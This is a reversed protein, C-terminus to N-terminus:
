KELKNLKPLLHRTASYAVLVIAFNEDMFKYGM